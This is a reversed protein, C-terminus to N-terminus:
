KYINGKHWLDAYYAKKQYLAQEARYEDYMQLIARDITGDNYGVYLKREGSITADAFYMEMKRKQMESFYVGLLNPGTPCLADRGYFRNKVHNVIQRICSFLIKNYPKSVILGTLTGGGSSELDRVFHEGETLAILKFNNVCKFKIDMYIGGNIFLVCYRWLDSKYSCPVLSDYASLVDPKFYRRIFDRCEDENYLHFKMEPNESILKEFNAHMLPPLDRTHWCTYVDLPIVSNYIQKPVFNLQTRKHYLGTNTQEGVGRDRLPQANYKVRLM